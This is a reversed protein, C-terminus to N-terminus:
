GRTIPSTEMREVGEVSKVLVSPSFKETSLLTPLNGIWLYGPQLISCEMDQM